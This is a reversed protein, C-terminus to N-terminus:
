LLSNFYEQHAQKPNLGESKRKAIFDRYEKREEFLYHSITGDKKLSKLASEFTIPDETGFVRNGKASRLEIQSGQQGISLEYKYKKNISSVLGEFYDLKLAM